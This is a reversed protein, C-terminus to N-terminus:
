QNFFYHTTLEGPQHIEVELVPVISKKLYYLSRWGDVIEFRKIATDCAIKLTHKGNSISNDKVQWEGPQLRWRLVAKEKFGAVKDVVDMRDHGLSVSRNHFAGEFDTYEAMVSPDHQLSRVVVRGAQLWRGSLFRSLRPMQDRNDFQITNHAVTGGFYNMINSDSNYSYTGADHLINEGNMWLDVHLADAQSPRFRFRPINFLVFANGSLLTCYGGDEFFTSKQIKRNKKPIKIGLWQLPLNPDGDSAYAREGCFLASALQVSPRYDRYGTDTLPLLRAGDNAGLNPAEGSETRTMQYLWNVAARLREYLVNSFAPLQFSQRWFEVMSYTDLMLRHYNTSFQSFSGDQEILHAARNELWKIGPRLYKKGDKDGNSVLWSGGIYLAAAESIGHNNDQAIAYSFTARIRKLHIKVMSLLAKQPNHSQGLIHAAVALHLVRISAEQGCKWNPGKYAPNKLSWDALWNNLSKTEGPRGIAARQAKALVWDFRSAEWITKIDGVKSDFDPIEWCPREPHEIRRSSFPNFHWDPIDKQFVVSYWGFYFGECDWHASPKLTSAGTPEAFLPKKPLAEKLFRLPHLGAKVTLSYFIVRAVNALGLSSVTQIKVWFDNMKQTM